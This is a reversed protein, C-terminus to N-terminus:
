KKLKELGDRIMGPVSQAYNPVFGLFDKVTRCSAKISDMKPSDLFDIVKQKTEGLNVAALADEMKTYAVGMDLEKIGEGAKVLANGAKEKLSKVDIM